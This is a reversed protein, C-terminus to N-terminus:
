LDLVLRDSCSRSVCPFMCTGTARETQNLISDRHDPKGDLITVECTGCTGTRCSSLLNVGVSQIADLVSVGPQVTVTVGSSALEVEFADQRAPEGHEKATFHELRLAGTPWDKCHSELADLMRQPGCAYVKTDAQTEGILSSLNVPGCEDKPLVMVRDGYEELEDLFAMTSRRRGIYILRAEAGLMVASRLMPLMATIGIGGAVFIYRQAPLLRFNNRPGGIAVMSDTTLERHVFESGGRGNHEHLISVRYTHPDWRDGCLSYQRTDGTPLVLDIHAGPTWDPLRKGRPDALTLSIVGDAVDRRAIIQLTLQSPAVFADVPPLTELTLVDAGERSTTM